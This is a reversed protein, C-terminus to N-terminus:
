RQTNLAGTKLTSSGFWSPLQPLQLSGFDCVTQWQLRPSLTMSGRCMAFHSEISPLHCCGSLYLHMM